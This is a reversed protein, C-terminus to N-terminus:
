NKAKQGSQKRCFRLRSPSCCSVARWAVQGCDFQTRRDALTDIDRDRRRGMRGDIGNIGKDRADIRLGMEERRPASM